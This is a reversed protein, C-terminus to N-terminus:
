LTEELKNGQCDKDRADPVSRLCYHLALQTETLEATPTLRSRLYGDFRAGGFKALETVPPEKSTHIALSARAIMPIPGLIALETHPLEEVLGNFAEILIHLGKDPVV